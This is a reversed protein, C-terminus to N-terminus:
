IYRDKYELNSRIQDPTFGLGRLDCEELGKPDSSSSISLMNIVGEKLIISRIGSSIIRM